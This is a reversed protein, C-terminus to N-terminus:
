IMARARVELPSVAARASLARSTTRRNGSYGVEGPPPLTGSFQRCCYSPTCIESRSCRRRLISGLVSRHRANDIVIFPIAAPRRLVPM